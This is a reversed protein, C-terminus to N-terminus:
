VALFVKSCFLAKLSLRKPPRNQKGFWFLFLASELPSEFHGGLVTETVEEQVVALLV